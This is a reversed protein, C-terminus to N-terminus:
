TCSARASNLWTLARTLAHGFLEEPASMSPAPTRIAPAVSAVEVLRGDPWRTIEIPLTFRWGNPLVRPIADSLIGRTPQGILCAHPLAALTLAATEGASVTNAGILVALPGTVRRRASPEVPVAYRPTEGDLGRASKLYAVAPAAAFRSALELSVADFGGSNVRLDVVLGRVPGLDSLVSDLVQAVTAVHVSAPTEDTQGNGWGGEALVALYGISGPLRGYLLRRNGAFRLSDVLPTTPGALWGRLAARLSGWAWPTGDPAAGPALIREADHRRSGGELSVHGDALPTVLDRLVAFLSDDSTSTTVRARAAAVAPAWAVGREAFFPYHTAFTATFHDFTVMPDVRRSPARCSPASARRLLLDRTPPRLLVVTDGHTSGVVSGYLAHFADARYRDGRVCGASSLDFSQIQGGDVVILYGYGASQWVGNPLPATSPAAVQASAQAISCSLMGLLALTRM